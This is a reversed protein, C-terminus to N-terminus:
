KELSIRNNIDFLIMGVTRDVYNIGASKESVKTVLESIDARTVTTEESIFRHAYRNVLNDIDIELESVRRNFMIRPLYGNLMLLNIMARFRDNWNNDRGQKIHKKLEEQVSEYRHAFSSIYVYKKSAHILKEISEWDSVGPTMSAFVLDFENIWCRKELDVESWDAVLLEYCEKKIENDDLNKQAYKIMDASIDIGTVHAGDGILQTMFRGAGCGIDLVKIGKLDIESTIFDMVGRDKPEKNYNYFEKARKDWHSKSHKSKREQSLIETYENKM